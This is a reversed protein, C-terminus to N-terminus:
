STSTRAGRFLLSSAFILSNQWACSQMLAMDVETAMPDPQSLVFLSIILGGFLLCCAMFVWCRAITTGSENEFPNAYEGVVGGWNVINLAILGLTSLLGPLVVPVFNIRAGSTSIADLWVLWGAGCLVGALVSCASAIM